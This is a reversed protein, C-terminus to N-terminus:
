ITDRLPPTIAATFAGHAAYISDFEMFIPVLLVGLVSVSLASIRAMRLLESETAQPKLPKYLDNVVIASVATVLTDVTSMLAATLAAMILGFVGPVALFEAAVFFATDPEMEPLVGAGALSKGVWGGSAVVLAAIPMLIVLMSIVAKRSDKISKAAMLRMVMGQNLFYFMASNAMADQWFIGVAPYSKDGYIGEAENFAPFALRHTRPLYEWFVDFGGLYSMGLVLLILGTLLLM